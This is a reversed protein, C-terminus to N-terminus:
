NNKLKIFLLITYEGFYEQFCETEKCVNPVFTKQLLAVEDSNLIM